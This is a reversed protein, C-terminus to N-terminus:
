DLRRVLVNQRKGIILEQKHTYVLIDVWNTHRKNMADMVKYVGLDPISILDNYRFTHNELLDQSVACIGMVAPSGLSTWNPTKDTYKALPRYATVTVSILDYTHSTPNLDNTSNGSKNSIFTLGKILLLTFLVNHCLM